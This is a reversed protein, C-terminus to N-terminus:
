KKMTFHKINIDGEFNGLKEEYKKKNEKKKTKQNLLRM